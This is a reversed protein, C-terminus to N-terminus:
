NTKKLSIRLGMDFNRNGTSFRHRMASRQGAWGDGWSGGRAVRFMGSAAGTPDVVPNGTPYDAHFRDATWEMLNGHMDFFGWPNASYDGVNKTQTFAGEFGGYNANTGTISNGWSYATTTGARCAYEWQSETPLAFTWGVPISASQQANLRTLFVQADDWSVQEVPRNPNNPWNSPTASLSNPNGIMVAEYQAQTVEYKGLYFGKTLTVNHEDERDAARGADATDRGAETTPSGMTFTGPPCWIMELNVSSNLDVALNSSPNSVDFLESSAPVSFEEWAKSSNRYAYIKGDGSGRLYLWDKSVNDYVWPYHKYYLWEGDAFVSSIIYLIGFFYFLAKM